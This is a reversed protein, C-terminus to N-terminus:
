VKSYRFSGKINRSLYEGKSVGPKMIETYMTEPVDFYQYVTGNLFAIELTRTSTDYGISEVNSSEVHDRKM